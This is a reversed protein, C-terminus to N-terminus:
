FASTHGTSNKKRLVSSINSLIGASISKELEKLGEREFPLLIIMALDEGYYPLELVSIKLNQDIGFSLKTKLRMMPVTKPINGNNYFTDPTTIRQDFKTQWTGKFYVANLLFLKTLPSLPEKILEEVKNQTRWATWANIMKVVIEGERAFDVEQVTANYLEEMQTKYSPLVSFDKQLLVANATELDYKSNNGNTNRMLNQFGRHVDKSELGLYDYGLVNAMEKETENRAGYYLMALATCLSMPSILLNGTSPLNWYLSFAFHNISEILKLYKENQIQEEPIDTPFHIEASTYSILCLIVTM